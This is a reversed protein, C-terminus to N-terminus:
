YITFTYERTVVVTVPTGNVRKPLFVIRKAAAIANETLGHSLEKVVVVSGVGGSALLTAKVRVPGEVNANRAADTYRAKPQSITRYPDSKVPTAPTPDTSNSLSGSGAGAGNGSHSAAKTPDTGAAPAALPIKPVPDPLVSDVGDGIEKGTKASFEISKLFRDFDPTDGGYHHVALEIWRKGKDVDSIVVRTWEASAFRNADRGEIKTMSGLVEFRSKAIEDLRKRLTSEGFPILTGYCRYGASKPLKEYVGFEYVAGEAYVYFRSSRLENCSNVNEERVPMKPFLFSVETDSIRYREWVVPASNQAYSSINFLIIVVVSRLLIKMILLKYM